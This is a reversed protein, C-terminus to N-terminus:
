LTEVIAEGSAPASPTQALEDRYHRLLTAMEDASRTRNVQERVTASRPLGKVYWAAHKRM